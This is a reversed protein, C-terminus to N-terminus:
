RPGKLSAMLTTIVHLCIHRLQKDLWILYLWKILLYVLNYGSFGKKLVTFNLSIIESNSFLSIILKSKVSFDGYNMSFYLLIFSFCFM